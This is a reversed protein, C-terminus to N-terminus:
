MPMRMIEEYAAIVKDRVAVLTQLAVETQAVATVVDVVDARGQAMAVASQEIAHGQEAFSGVAQKLLNGFDAGGAAPAAAPNSGSAAQNALGAIASYAGAASTPTM